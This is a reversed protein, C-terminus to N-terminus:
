ILPPYRILTRTLFFKYNFLRFHRILAEQTSKKGFFNLTGLRKNPVSSYYDLASIDQHQVFAQITDNKSQNGMTDALATLVEPFFMQIAM